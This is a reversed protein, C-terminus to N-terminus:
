TSIIEVFDNKIIIRHVIGTKEVESIKDLIDIAFPAINEPTIDFDTEIPADLFTWELHTDDPTDLFKQAYELPTGFKLPIM